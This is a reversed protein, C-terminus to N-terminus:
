GQALHIEVLGDTVSFANEWVCIYLYKNMYDRNRYIPQQMYLVAKLYIFSFGCVADCVICMYAWRM